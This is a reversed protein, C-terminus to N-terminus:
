RSVTVVGSVGKVVRDNEAGAVFVLIHLPHRSLNLFHSLKLFDFPQQTSDFLTLAEFHLNTAQLCLYVM